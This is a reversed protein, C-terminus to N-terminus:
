YRIAVLITIQRAADRVQNGALVKVIAQQSRPERTLLPPRVEGDHEATEAEGHRRRDCSKRARHWVPEDGLENRM